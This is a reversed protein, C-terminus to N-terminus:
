PRCLSDLHQVEVIDPLPLRQLMRWERRRGQIKHQTPIRKPLNLVERWRLWYIQRELGFRRALEEIAQRILEYGMMLYDRGIERYPLLHQAAALQKEIAPYLSSAGCDSLRQPLEEAARNSLAVSEALTDRPDRAGCQRLRDAAHAVADPMERWRPASLEMEGPGRHGFRQLFDAASLEGIGVCYLMAQQTQSNGVDLGSILTRAFRSGEDPGLCMGLRRELDAFALAGFLGPRLSEAAFEDLVRVCREMLRAVVDTDSLRTFDLRREREVYDLYEPLVDRDFREAAQDRGRKLRWSSRLLRWAVGPLRLLFLPDTKEPAFHAPTRDILSPDRQLEEREYRLPLGADFMEAVRDPDAYIRGAIRDLFGHRSVRRSPRYGL